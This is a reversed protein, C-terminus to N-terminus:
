YSKAVQFAFKGVLTTVNMLCAPNTLCVDCLAGMAKKFQPNKDMLKKINKLLEDNSQVSFEKECTSKINNYVEDWSNYKKTNPNFIYNFRKENEQMYKNYEDKWSDGYRAQFTDVLVESVVDVYLHEFSDYDKLSKKGFAGSEFMKENHQQNEKFIDKYTKNM